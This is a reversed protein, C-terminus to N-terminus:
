GVNYLPIVLTVVQVTACLITTASEVNLTSEVSELVLIWVDRSSALRTELANQTPPASQDATLHVDLTHQDVHVLQLEEMTEASQTRVVHHHYM